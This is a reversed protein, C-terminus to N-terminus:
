SEAKKKEIYAVLKAAEAFGPDLALAKQAYTVAEDWKLWDFYLRAFNFFLNPDQDELKLARGFYLEGEDFRKLKRLVIGLRNLVHASDPLLRAALLFHRVADEHLGAENFLEGIEVALKGEESYDESLQDLTRRGEDYQGALLEKRGKELQAQQYEQHRKMAESTSNEQLAEILQNMLDALQNEAGPQYQIALPFIQVINENYRLLDTTSKLLTIFEESENRMMPVRGFLRAADRVSTAASILQGQKLDSTVRSLGRRATILEQSM